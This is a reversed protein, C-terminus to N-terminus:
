PAPRPPLDPSSGSEQAEPIGAPAPSIGAVSETVRRMHASVEEPALSGQAAEILPRIRALIRQARRIRNLPPLEETQVATRLYSRCAPGSLNNILLPIALLGSFIGLTVALASTPEPRTLESILGALAPVLMVAFAINWMARRRTAVVAIAQIDRFYFRKYEETYGTSDIVLLHDKGLWLSARTAVVALFRQRRLRPRALRQYDREAM